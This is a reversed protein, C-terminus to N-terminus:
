TRPSPSPLTYSQRRQNQTTRRRTTKTHDGRTITRGNRRRNLFSGGQPGMYLGLHTFNLPVDDEKLIIKPKIGEVTKLPTLGFKPDLYKGNRRLLKIAAILEKPKDELSLSIGAEAYTCPHAHVLTTSPLAFKTTTTMSYCNEARLAGAPGKTKKKEPSNGSLDVTEQPTATAQPHYSTKTTKEGFLQCGQLEEADDPADDELTRDHPATTTDEKNGDPDDGDIDATINGIHKNINPVPLDTITETTVPSIVNTDRARERKATAKAQEEEERKEQTRKKKKENRLKREKEVQM